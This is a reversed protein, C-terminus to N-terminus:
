APSWGAPNEPRPVIVELEPRKLCESNIANYIAHTLGNCKTAKCFPLYESMLLLVGQLIIVALEIHSNESM